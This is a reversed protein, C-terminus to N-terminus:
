FSIIEFAKPDKIRLAFTGELKFLIQGPQWGAWQLEPEIGVPRDIWYHAGSENGNAPDIQKRVALMIASRPPLYDSAEIAAIPFREAREIHNSPSEMFNPPILENLEDLMCSEILLVMSQPRIRTMLRRGASLIAKIYHPGAGNLMGQKRAVPPPAPFASWFHDDQPPRVLFQKPINPIANIGNFLIDDEYRGYDEIWQEIVLKAAILNPERLDEEPLPFNLELRILERQAVRDVSSNNRVRYWPESVAGAVNLAPTSPIYKAAIRFEELRSKVFARLTTLAPELNPPLLTANM